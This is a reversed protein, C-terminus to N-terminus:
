ILKLHRRPKRKFRGRTKLVAESKPLRKLLEGNWYLARRVDRVKCCCHVIDKIYAANDPRRKVLDLLRELAEGYRGSYMLTLAQCYLAELNAPDQGYAITFEELADAYAGDTLYCVGLNQHCESQAYQIRLSRKYYKKATEVDRVTDYYVGLYYLADVHFSNMREARKFYQLAKEYEGLALYARGLNFVPRVWNPDQEMLKEFRAIAEQYNGLILACCGIYNECEETEEVRSFQTFLELATEYSGSAYCDEAKQFLAGNKM